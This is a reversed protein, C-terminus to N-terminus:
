WHLLSSGPCRSQVPTPSWGTACWRQWAHGCGTSSFQTSPGTWRQWRVPPRTRTWLRRACSAPADWPTLSGRVILCIPCPLRTPLSSHDRCSRAAAAVCCQTWCGNVTPTVRQVTQHHPPVRRRVSLPRAPCTMLRLLTPLVTLLRLLTVVRARATRLLGHAYDSDLALM